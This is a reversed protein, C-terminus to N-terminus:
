QVGYVLMTDVPQEAGPEYIRLIVAEDSPYYSLFVSKLPSLDFRLTDIMIADCPDDHDDHSLFVNTQVPFSEMFCHSGFLAYDHTECGGGSEAVLTLTDRQLAVDVMLAPDEHLPIQNEDPIIQIVDPSDTFPTEQDPPDSTPDLQRICTISVLILVLFFGVSATRRKRM